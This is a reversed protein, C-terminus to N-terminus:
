NPTIVIFYEVLTFFVFRHYFAGPASRLITILDNESIPGLYKNTNISMSFVTATM